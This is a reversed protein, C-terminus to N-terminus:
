ELLEFLRDLKVENKILDLPNLNLNTLLNPKNQLQNSKKGNIIKDLLTALSNALSTQFYEDIEISTM